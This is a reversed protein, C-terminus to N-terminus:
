LCNQLDSLRAESTPPEYSKTNRMNVQLITKMKRRWCQHYAVWRKQVICRITVYWSDVYFFLTSGCWTAHSWFNSFLTGWHYKEKWQLSIWMFDNWMSGTKRWTEIENKTIYSWKSIVANLGCINIKM